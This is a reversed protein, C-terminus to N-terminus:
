GAERLTYRGHADAHRTIECWSGDPAALYTLPTQDDNALRISRFVGVPLHLQALFAFAGDLEAPNVTTTRTIPSHTTPTPRPTGTTPGATTRRRMFCGWWPLFRGHLVPQEGRHLATLNGAGLPGTLHVLVQAGPRLQHIWAPPIASLACTAIIRDFPAQDPLGAAGDGTVVTPHYGLRALRDRAAQVLAPDIDISCVGQDGLRQALLAANYGTGTGIELVRMGDTIDLTELMRIMLDPKTSSCVPIQVGRDAFDAVDTIITTPSYVLELWQQISDTDDPKHLVWRSPRTSTDQLYYRPIFEHRPIALVADRWAPTRLDGGAILQAVLRQVLARWAPATVATTM